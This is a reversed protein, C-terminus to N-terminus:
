QDLKNGCYPCFTTKSTLSKGCHPCFYMANEKKVESMGQATMKGRWKFFDGIRLIIGGILSFAYIPGVVKSQDYDLDGFFLVLICIFALIFLINEITKRM